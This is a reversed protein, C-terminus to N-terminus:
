SVVFTVADSWESQQQRKITAVRFYYRKLSELGAITFSAITSEGAKTWDTQNESYEWAYASGRIAKRRLKVVGANNKDATAALIPVNVSGQKRVEMGSSLIIDIATQPNGSQNAIYEVYGALATLQTELIRMMAYMDATDAPTGDIAKNYAAEAADTANTVGLLTPSPSSFYANGTMQMIISRAKGIKAPISLQSLKLVVKKM